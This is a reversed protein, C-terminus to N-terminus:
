PLDCRHCCGGVAHLNTGCRQCRYPNEFYSMKEDIKHARKRQDNLWSFADKLNGHIKYAHDIDLNKHFENRHLFVVWFWWDGFGLFLIERYWLGIKKLM